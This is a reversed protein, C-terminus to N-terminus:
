KQDKRYSPQDKQEKLIDIATDYEGSQAFTIAIMVDEFRKL